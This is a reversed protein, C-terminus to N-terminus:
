LKSRFRPPHPDKKMEESFEPSSIIPRVVAHATKQELIHSAMSGILVGLTSPLKKFLGTESSLGQRILHANRQLLNIDQIMLTGHIEKPFMSFPNVGYQKLKEISTTKDFYGIVDTIFESTYNDKQRTSKAAQKNLSDGQKLLLLIYDLEDDPLGKSEECYSAAQQTRNGLQWNEEEPLLNFIAKIKDNRLM